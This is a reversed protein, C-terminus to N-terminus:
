KRPPRRDCPTSRQDQSLLSSRLVSSLLAPLSLGPTRTGSLICTIGPKGILCRTVRTKALRTGPGMPQTIDHYLLLGDSQVGHLCERFRRHFAAPLAAAPEHMFSAYAARMTSAFAPDDPTLYRSSPKGGLPPQRQQRREEKEEEEEQQQQQQQEQEEVQQPEQEQAAADAFAVQLESLAADTVPWKAAASRTQLFFTATDCARFTAPRTLRPAYDVYAHEAVGVLLRGRYFRSHGIEAICSLKLAPATAGIVLAFSLPAQAADARALLEECRTILAAYLEASFPPNLEFSGSLVGRIDSGTESGPTVEGGGGEGGVGFFSGRSGFPADVDTFASCYSGGATLPNLTCNLPSAFAECSVGWLRRLCAFVGPPLALQFGGGDLTQYRLLLAMLSRLFHQEREASSGGGSRLDYLRRLTGLRRENLQLSTDFHRTSYCLEVLGAKAADPRLQVSATEHAADGLCALSRALKAASRPWEVHLWCALAAADSQLFGDAVLERTLVAQLESDSSDSLVSDAPLLPDAGHAVECRRLLSFHWKAFCSLVGGKAKRVERCQQAFAKRLARFHERRLLEAEIPYASGQTPPEMEVCGDGRSDRSWGPKKKEARAM